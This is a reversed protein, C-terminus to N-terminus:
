IIVCEVERWGFGDKNYTYKGLNTMVIPFYTKEHLWHVLKQEVKENPDGSFQDFSHRAFDGRLEEPLIFANIKTEFKLTGIQSVAVGGTMIPAPEVSVFVASINEHIFKQKALDKPVIQSKDYNALEDESISEINIPSNAINAM